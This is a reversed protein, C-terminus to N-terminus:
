DSGVILESTTFHCFLQVSPCDSRRVEANVRLIFIPFRQYNRGEEGSPLFTRKMQQLQLEFENEWQLVFKSFILHCEVNSM